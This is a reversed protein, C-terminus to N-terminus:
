GLPGRSFMLGLSQDLGTVNVTQYVVATLTQTTRDFGDATQMADTYTFSLADSVTTKRLYTTVDAPNFTAPTKTLYLDFTPVSILPSADTFAPLGAESGDDAWQGDYRSRRKWQVVADTGSYNIQGASPRFPRYQKSDYAARTVTQELNKSTPMAITIPKFEGDGLEVNTQSISRTNILGDAGGLLFFKEGTGHSVAGDETGFLAHRIVSFTWTGDGNDVATQFQILENGVWALNKQRNNLMDYYDACSGLTAGAASMIRVTFSESFGTTYCEPNNRLPTGVVFGWTPFNQMAPVAYTDTDTTITINDKPIATAGARLSILTMYIPYSTPVVDAGKAQTESLFPFALPTFDVRTPPEPLAAPTYRGLTGFLNIQDAYIDPDERTGTFQYSHDAGISTQRLRITIDDLNDAPNFKFTVVDSPDYMMASSPLAGAFGAQYTIKAYLLIEALRRAVDSTLVIPVQVSIAADADVIAEDYKPLHVSQVNTKYDRDVDRYSISLKRAGALDYEHTETLWADGASGSSQMKTEYVTAIAINGRQKYTIEGNSEVIDFTFVQQLENFAQRLTYGDSNISYGDVALSDFGKISIDAERWDVRSLLKTIITSLAVQARNARSLFVKYVAQTLSNGYLLISDERGNYRSATLVGSGSTSTIGQDALDFEKKVVGTQFDVSWVSTSSPRDIWAWKENSVDDDGGPVVYSLNGAGFGGVHKIPTKWVIRTNLIDYKFIVSSMQQELDGIDAVVIVSLDSKCFMAKRLYIRTGFLDVPPIIDCNAMRPNTLSVTGDSQSDYDVRDVYLNFDTPGGASFYLVHKGLTLAGDAFRPTKEAVSAPITIVCSTVGGDWLGARGRCAIDDANTYFPYSIKGNDTITLIALNPRHSATIPYSMTFVIDCPQGDTDLGRVVRIVDDGSAAPAGLAHGGTSPSPASMDLVADAFPSWVIFPHGTGGSTDNTWLINGTTLMHARTQSRDLFNPVKATTMISTKELELTNGDWVALGNNGSSDAGSCGTLYVNYGPLYTIFNALFGDVAPDVAVDGVLRPYLSTTNASVEISLSPVSDTILWNEILLFATGRYAPTYEYGEQKIMVPPPTQNAAGSYVTIRTKRQDPAIVTLPSDPTTLDATLSSVAGNVDHVPTGDPNTETTNDLVLQDGVYIRLIHDIEGECLAIALSVSYYFKQTDGDTYTNKTFPSAWIVNGSILDSGFVIPIVGGYASQTFVLNNGSDSPTIPNPPAPNAPVQTTTGCSAGGYLRCCDANQTRPSVPFCMFDIGGGAVTVTM